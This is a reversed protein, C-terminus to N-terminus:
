RIARLRRADDGDLRCAGDTRQQLADRYEEIAKEHAAAASEASRARDAAFSAARESVELDRTLAAVRAELAATACAARAGAQGRLFGAAFAVTVAVLGIGGIMLWRQLQPAILAFV